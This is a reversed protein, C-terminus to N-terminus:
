FQVKKRMSNKPSIKSRPLYKEVTYSKVAWRNQQENTCGYNAVIRMKQINGFGEDKKVKVGNVVTLVNIGINVDGALKTTKKISRAKATLVDLILPAGM